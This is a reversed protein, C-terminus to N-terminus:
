NAPSRRGRRLVVSKNEALLAEFIYKIDQIVFLTAGTNFANWNEINGAFLPLDRTLHRRKNLRRGRRLVVPSCYYYDDEM